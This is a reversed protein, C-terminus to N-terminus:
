LDLTQVRLRAGMMQIPLMSAVAVNFFNQLGANFVRFQDSYHLTLFRGLPRLEM